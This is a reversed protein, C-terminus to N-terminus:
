RILHALAGAGGRPRQAPDRDCQDDAPHDPRAADRAAGVHRLGHLDERHDRHDEGRPQRDVSWSPKANAEEATAIAASTPEIKMSRYGLTITELM